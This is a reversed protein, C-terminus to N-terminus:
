QVAAASGSGGGSVRGSASASRSPSFFTSLLSLFCLRFPLQARHMRTGLSWLSHARAFHCHINGRCSLSPAHNTARILAPSRSRQRLTLHSAHPTLGCCAWVDDRPPRLTWPDRRSTQALHLLHVGPHPCAVRIMNNPHRVRCTKSRTCCLLKLRTSRTDSQKVGAHYMRSAKSGM